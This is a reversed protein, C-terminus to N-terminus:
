DPTWTIFEEMSGHEEMTSNRCSGISDAEMEGLAPQPRDLAGPHVARPHVASM